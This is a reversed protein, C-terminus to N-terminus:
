GAGWYTISYLYPVTDFSNLQIGQTTVVLGEMNRRQVAVVQLLSYHGSSLWENKSPTNYGSPHNRLGKDLHTLYAFEVHKM